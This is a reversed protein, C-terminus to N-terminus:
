EFYVPTDEGDTVVVYVITDARTAPDLGEWVTRISEAHMDAYAMVVLIQKVWRDAAVVNASSELIDDLKREIILAEATTYPSDPPFGVARVVSVGVPVDGMSVLMDTKPSTAPVYVIETESKVLTANECRALVEFAFAESVGSSGGATGDMLIEQAGATLLSREAPDDFGDMAFDLRTQFFSPTSVGLEAVLRGCPGAIEGFATAGADWPGGDMTIGSDAHGADFPLDADVPAADDAPGADRSADPDTHASGDSCGAGWLMM